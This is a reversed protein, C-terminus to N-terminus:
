FEAIVQLEQPYITVHKWREPQDAPEFGAGVTLEIVEMMRQNLQILRFMPFRDNGIVQVIEAWVGYKDKVKEFENSIADFLKPYSGSQSVEVSRYQYSDHYFNVLTKEM